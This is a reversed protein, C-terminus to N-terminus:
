VSLWRELGYRSQKKVLCKALTKITVHSYTVCTGSEPIFVNEKKFKHVNQSITKVTANRTAQHTNQDDTKTYCKFAQSAIELVAKKSIHRADYHQTQFDLYGLSTAYSSTPLHPKLPILCKVHCKTGLQHREQLSYVAKSHPTAKLASLKAKGWKETQQIGHRSSNFSNFIGQKGVGAAWQQATGSDHVRSSYALTFQRRYTAKTM